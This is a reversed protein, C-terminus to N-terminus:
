LTGNVPFPALSDISSATASADKSWSLMGWDVMAFVVDVCEVVDDVDRGAGSAAIGDLLRCRDSAIWEDESNIVAAAM